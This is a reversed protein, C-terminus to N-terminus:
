LYPRVQTDRRHDFAGLLFPDHLHCALQRPSRKLFCLVQQMHGDSALLEIRGQDFAEVAGHTFTQSRERAFTPM